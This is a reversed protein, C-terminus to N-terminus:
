NLRPGAEARTKDKSKKQSRVVAWVVLVSVAALLLGALLWLLCYALALGKGLEKPFLLPWIFDWCHLIDPASVDWSKIDDPDNGGTESKGDPGLSYLDYAYPSHVPPFVYVYENGWPDVRGNLAPPTTEPTAQLAHLGDEDTPYRDFECKFIDLSICILAIEWRATNLDQTPTKEAAPLPLALLVLCLILLLRYRM